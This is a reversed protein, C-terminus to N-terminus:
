VPLYHPRDPLQPELTAADEPSLSSFTRRFQVGPVLKGLEFILYQALEGYTGKPIDEVSITGLLHDDGDPLKLELLLGGHALRRDRVRLPVGFLTDEPLLELQYGWRELAARLDSPKPPQAMPTHLYLTWTDNTLKPGHLLRRTLWWAIAGFVLALFVMFTFEPGATFGFREWMRVDGRVLWWGLAGGSAAAILTIVLRM